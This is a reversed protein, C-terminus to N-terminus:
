ASLEPQRYEYYALYSVYVNYTSITSANVGISNLKIGKMRYKTQTSNLRIYSVGAVSNKVISNINVIVDSTPSGNIWIVVDYYLTFDFNQQLNSSNLIITNPATALGKPAIEHQLLLNEIKQLEMEINSLDQESM